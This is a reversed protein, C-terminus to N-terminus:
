KKRLAGNVPQTLITFTLATFITGEIGGKSEKSATWQAIFSPLELEYMGFLSLAFVVFLLGIALNTYANQSLWQFFSLLSVAAITMVVVITASYVAAM